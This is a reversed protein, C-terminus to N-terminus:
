SLTTAKAQALPEHTRTLSRRVEILLVAASEESIQTLTVTAFALLALSAVSGLTTAVLVLSRYRLLPRSSSEMDSSRQEPLPSLATEPARELGRFGKRLDMPAAYAWVTVQRIWRLRWSLTSYQGDRRRAAALGPRSPM